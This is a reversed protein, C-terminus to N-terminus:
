RAERFAAEADELTTWGALMTNSYSDVLYYNCLTGWEFFSKRAKKFAQGDKRALRRLRQDRGEDSM